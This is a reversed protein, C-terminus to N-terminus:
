VRTAKLIERLEAVTGIGRPSGAIRALIMRAGHGFPLRGCRRIVRMRARDFRAFFSLRRARTQEAIM